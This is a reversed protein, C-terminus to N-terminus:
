MAQVFQILVLMAVGVAIFGEVAVVAVVAVPKFHNLEIWLSM